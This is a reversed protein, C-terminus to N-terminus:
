VTHKIPWEEPCQLWWPLYQYICAPCVSATVSPAALSLLFVQLL